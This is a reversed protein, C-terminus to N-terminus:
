RDNLRHSFATGDDPASGHNTKGARGRAVRRCYRPDMELGLATQSVPDVLRHDLAASPRASRRVAWGAVQAGM